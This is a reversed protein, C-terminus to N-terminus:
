RVQICTVEAYAQRLSPSHSHSYTEAEKGLPPQGHPPPSPNERMELTARKAEEGPSM